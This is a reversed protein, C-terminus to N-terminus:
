LSCAAELCVSFFVWGRLVLVEDTAYLHLTQRTIKFSFAAFCWLVDRQSRSTPLGSHIASQSFPSSLKAIKSVCVIVLRTGLKFNYNGLIFVLPFLLFLPASVIAAARWYSWNTPRDELWFSYCVPKLSLRRNLKKDYKRVSKFQFGHVM